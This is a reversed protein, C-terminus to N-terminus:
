TVWGVGGRACPYSLQQCIGGTRPHHPGSRGDTHSWIGGHSMLLCSTHGMRRFSGAPAARIRTLSAGRVQLQTFSTQPASLQLWGAAKWCLWSSTNTLGALNVAARTPPDQEGRPGQFVPWVGDSCVRDYGSHRAKTQKMPRRM